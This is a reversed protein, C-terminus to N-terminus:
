LIAFKCFKRNVNMLKLKSVCKLRLDKDIKAYTYFM